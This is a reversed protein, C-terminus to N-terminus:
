EGDGAAEGLTLVWCDACLEDGQEICEPTLAVNCHACTSGLVAALSVSAAVTADARCAGCREEGAQVDATSLPASCVRCASEDFCEACIGPEDEPGLEGTCVRCQGYDSSEDDAVVDGPAAMVKGDVYWDNLASGSGYGEYREVLEQRLLAEVAVRILADDDEGAADVLRPVGSTRLEWRAFSLDALAPMFREAAAQGCTPKSLTSLAAACVIAIEAPGVIELGSIQEELAATRTKLADRKAAKEAKQDAAKLQRFRKPDICIPYPQDNHRAKAM